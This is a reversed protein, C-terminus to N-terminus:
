KENYIVQKEYIQTSRIVYTVVIDGYRHCNQDHQQKCMRGSFVETIDEPSLGLTDFRFAREVRRKTKHKNGKGVKLWIIVCM